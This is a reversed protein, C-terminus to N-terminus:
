LIHLVLNKLFLFDRHGPQPPETPQCHGTCWFTIQKIGLWPVHPSSGLYSAHQLGSISTKSELRHKERGRRGSERLILLFLKIFFRNYHMIVLFVLSWISNIHLFETFNLSFYPSWTGLVLELVLWFGVISRCTVSGM